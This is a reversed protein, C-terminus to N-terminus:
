HDSCPTQGQSYFPDTRPTLSSQIGGWGVGGGGRGVWDERCSQKGDRFSSSRSWVRKRDFAAYFLVTDKGQCEKSDDDLLVLDYRVSRVCVGPM